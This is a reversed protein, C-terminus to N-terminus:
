RPSTRSRAGAGGPGRAAAGNIGPAAGRQRLRGRQEALVIVRDEAAFRVSASKRPNLVVGYNRAADASGAALRYGLAVEGRERAAAVVTYFNVPRDLVVYDGIPKLYIEAGEPDFLDAFVRNLMKNEAVQSLMLSVLRDSVIFDDPRAVEALARNQQDLMESVISFRYGNRDVMDRLHLLTILTRADARQPYLHDSYSLTIVHLYREV